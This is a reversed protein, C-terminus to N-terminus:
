FEKDMTFKKEINGLGQLGGMGATNTALEQGQSDFLSIEGNSIKKLRGRVVGMKKYAMEEIQGGQGEYVQLMLFASALRTALQTIMAEAPSNLWYANETLPLSYRVGLEGMVEAEADESHPTIDNTNDINSNNTFGSERRVKDVTTYTLTM